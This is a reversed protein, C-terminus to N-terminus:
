WPWPVTTQALARMWSTGLPLRNTVSNRAPPRDTPPSGSTTASADGFTVSGGAAAGRGRDRPLDGAFSSNPTVGDSCRKLVHDSAWVASSLAFNKRGASSNPDTPSVIQTPM